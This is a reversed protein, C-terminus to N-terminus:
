PEPELTAVDMISQWHQQAQQVFNSLNESTEPKSCLVAQWPRHSPPQIWPM